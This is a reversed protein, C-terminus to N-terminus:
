QSLCQWTSSVDVVLAYLLFLIGLLTMVQEGFGVCFVNGGGGSAKCFFFVLVGLHRSVADLGGGVWCRGDDVWAPVVLDIGVKGSGTSDPLDVCGPVKVCGLCWNHDQGSHFNALNVCVAPISPLAIGCAIGVNSSVRDGRIRLLILSGCFSIRGISWCISHSLLPDQWSDVDPSM